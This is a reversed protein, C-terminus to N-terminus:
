QLAETMVVPADAKQELAARADAASGAEEKKTAM